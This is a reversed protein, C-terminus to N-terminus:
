FRQSMGVLITRRLGYQPAYVGVGSGTRLEYTRDLLNIVDLRVTAGRWGYFNLPQVISGNLTYYGPVEAGNPITETDTTLDSRLGSGYILDATLLTPNRTKAHLTYAIGASGTVRQDHDLYIWHQQSYALTEEDFNFQASDIDKGIARSYALNGYLSLPGRDYSASFEVGTDEGQAYNFATLIVPAGFQGEDILDHASKYYADVGVRLAPSLIQQVGVDYYDDREAKVTSDQTSASAGTTNAFASVTNSGILEFPPPTFYRAYGAHLTTTNTPKWVVNIRPSLQTASTYENVGDFRTGYNITVRPLIKWEDQLYLGYLTGVKQQGQYITEPTESTQVPMGSDLYEGSTAPLVESATSVNLADAEFQFGFRLTHADNIRWSGDNQVGNSWVSRDATQAIGNYMLDGLTDPTYNLSSYRSYLSIQEDVTDYHKQLSLIGFDTIERQYENLDASNFTSVGNVVYTPTQGPNNPIQFQENSVGVILSVRTTPDLITSFHWLLHYQDSVDHIPSYSSTPNEIGVPNRLYDGTFFYDTNGTVGGYSFSPQLYGRSGGEMSVVGGPDTSGSKTQIDVVGAQLFGYEAPLAGTILSMSHAFSSELAQGFVSLGEPLEVGDLRYQVENHDGRVHIQGFSDQAVGPAQLMVQNLPANGAQPISELATHSLNYQSAGLSTEIQSRAANLKEAVKVTRVTTPETADDTPTVVTTTVAPTATTTTTTTATTAATATTTAATTPTTTKTASKTAAPTKTKTKTATQPAAPTTATTVPATQAAAPLIGFGGATLVLFTSQLLIKRTRTM